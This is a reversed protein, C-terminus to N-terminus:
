DRRCHSRRAETFYNVGVQYRSRFKPLGCILRCPEVQQTNHLGERTWLGTEGNTLRFAVLAVSLRVPAHPVPDSLPTYNILAPILRDPFM